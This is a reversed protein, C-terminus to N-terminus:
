KLKSLFILPPLPPLPPPTALLEDDARGGGDDDDGDRDHPSSHKIRLFRTSEASEFRSREWNALRSETKSRTAIPVYNRLSEHYIYKLITLLNEKEKKKIITLLVFITYM